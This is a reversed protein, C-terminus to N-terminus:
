RAKLAEVVAADLEELGRNVDVKYLGTRYHVVKGDKGIVVWLPLPASFQRPDGLGKIFEGSDTTIEYGVNMFEKLKRISRVAAPSTDPSTLRSDVAVGLVRVGDAGRRSSLFDLYGIQGYPETLPSDRYEWFHLVVVKGQLSAADFDTGALTKVRVPPAGKGVFKQALDAVASVRQQQAKVDRHIVAILTEYPTGKAEAALSETQGAVNELQAASLEFDAPRGDYGVDKQLQRLSAGVSVIKHQSAESVASASSLKTSLEFRDGQGMFVKQSIGVVIGDQQDILFTGRKGLGDSSEVVWCDWEGSRRTGTVQYEVQGEEWTVDAVLKPHGALFPVRLTLPYPLGDHKHINMVPNPSAQGEGHGFRGIWHLADGADDVLHLTTLKAEPASRTVFVHTQYEHVPSANGSRDLQSLQTAYHLDTTPAPSLPSAALIWSLYGILVSSM